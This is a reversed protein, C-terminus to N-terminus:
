SHMPSKKSFLIAGVFPSEYREVSELYKLNGDPHYIRQDATWTSLPTGSLTENFSFNNLECPLGLRMNYHAALAMSELWTLRTAFPLHNKHDIHMRRSHTPLHMIQSPIGPGIMREVYGLSGQAIKFTSPAGNYGKQRISRVWPASCSENLFATWKATTAWIPVVSTSLINTSKQIM